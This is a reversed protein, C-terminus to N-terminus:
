GSWHLYYQEKNEKSLVYECTAKVIELAEIYWTNDAGTIVYTCEREGFLKHIGPILALVKLPEHYSFEGKMNSYNYDCDPRVESLFERLAEEESSITPVSFINAHVTRVRYGGKEKFDAIVDIVNKLALDWDPQFDYEDEEKNFIEYLTPLGLNSLITNIGGDNYSSRFYGIKFYHEPYDPHTIEIKESKPDEGNEGLGLEINYLRVSEHIRDKDEQTMDAYNVDDFKNWLEESYKNSKTELEKTKKYDDYRYMYVDLGM